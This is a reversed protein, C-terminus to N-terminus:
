FCPSILSEICAELTIEFEICKATDNKCHYSIYKWTDYGECVLLVQGDEFVNTAGLYSYSSTRPDRLYSITFLKTWSEKNGYEKMVWVDEGSILCLCDRFVSLHLTYKDVEGYDDLLLVKQYSEKGLDFSAIFCQGLSAIFHANQRTGTSVLWNITGSVYQGSHLVSLGVFPFDSVSKWSNTGLTHVKVKNKCFYNRSYDVYKFGRLVFVAKYNDSIPDYGFGSMLKSHGFNIDQQETISPLEKFKRIAPNWLRVLVYDRGVESFCLIGNCSGDFYVFCQRSLPLQTTQPFQTQNTMVSSDLSYSKLVHKDPNLVHGSPYSICHISHTTSLSLHKKAFNPDSILSKWSKCVCRFQLLSKVPLRSLVGPILEVPLYPLSPSPSILTQITKDSVM